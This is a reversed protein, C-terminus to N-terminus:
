AKKCSSVFFVKQLHLWPTTDKSVLSPRFAGLGQTHCCVWSLLAGGIQLWPGGHEQLVVPSAGKTTAEATSTFNAIM